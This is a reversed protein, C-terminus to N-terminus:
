DYVFVAKGVRQRDSFTRHLFPGANAGRFVSDVIVDYDGAAYDALADRLDATTGLCSGIIQVNRIVATELASAYREGGGVADASRVGCTVYRAHQAALPMTWSLHLDLFPDFICDFGGVERAQARLADSDAAHVTRAGIQRLLAGRETASTVATVDAGRAALVRTLCLSTTSCAATVLVPMGPAVDAKAVMNYATQAGLSFAAATHDPMMSPILAVASEPLTLYERSAHDTPIGPRRASPGAGQRPGPYDNDGIVRDGVLVRSVHRGVAVVDAVFESGVAYFRDDALRQAALRMLSKDRYNCAFARVRLLLQHASDPAGRRFQPPPAALVGTTVPVGDIDVTAITDNAPHALALRPGGVVVRRAGATEHTPRSVEPSPM